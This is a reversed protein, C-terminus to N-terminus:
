GLKLSRPSYINARVASTISYTKQQPASPRNKACSPGGPKDAKVSSKPCFRVDLHAQESRRPKHTCSRFPPGPM